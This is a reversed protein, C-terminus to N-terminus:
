QLTFPACVLLTLPIILKHAQLLIVEAVNLGVLHRVSMSCVWSRDGPALEAQTRCTVPLRRCDRSGGEVWWESSMQELVVEGPDFGRPEDTDTGYEVDIETSPGTPSKVRCVTKSLLYPESCSGVAALDSTMRSRLLAERRLRDGHGKHTTRPLSVDEEDLYNITDVTDAYHVRPRVRLPERGDYRM